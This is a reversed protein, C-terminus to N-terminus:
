LSPVCSAARYAAQNFPYAPLVRTRHAVLSYPPQLRFRRCGSLGRLNIVLQRLLSHEELQSLSVLLSYFM